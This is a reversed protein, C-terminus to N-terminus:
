NGHSSAEAFLPRYKKSRGQSVEIVVGIAALSALRNNWGTAHRLGEAFDRMLESADTEGRQNVLDFALQQKPDLAGILCSNSVEGEPSLSCSMIVNGSSTALLTLEERIAENANAVVPYLMSRRARVFDRFALISERLYSATAVEINEFDLFIPEPNTPEPSIQRILKTFMDAGRPSGSLIATGAVSRIEIKNVKNM